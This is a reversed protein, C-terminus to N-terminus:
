AGSKNQGMRANQGAGREITRAQERVGGEAASELESMDYQLRKGVSVRGRGKVDRVRKREGCECARVSVSVRM